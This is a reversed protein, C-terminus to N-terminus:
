QLLTTAWFIFRFSVFRYKSQRTTELTKKEKRWGDWAQRPLHLSSLISHEFVNPKSHPFQSLTTQIPRTRTHTALLCALLCALM